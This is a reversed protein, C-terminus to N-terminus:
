KEFVDEYRKLIGDYNEKFKDSFIGKNFRQDKIVLDKYKDIQTLYVRDMIAAKSALTNGELDSLTNPVDLSTNGERDVLFKVNSQRKLTVMDHTMKSAHKLLGLMDMNLKDAEEASLFESSGSSNAVNRSGSASASSTSQRNSNDEMFYQVPPFNIAPMGKINMHLLFFEFFCVLPVIGTFSKSMSNIIIYGLVSM